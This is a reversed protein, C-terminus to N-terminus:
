AAFTEMSLITSEFIERGLPTFKGSEKLTKYTASIATIYNDLAPKVLDDGFKDSIAPTSLGNILRYLVFHAHYIGILPRPKDRFPSGYLENPANLLLPDKMTQLHLHVHASEHLIRDLVVFLNRNDFSDFSQIYILKALDFTTGASMIESKFVLFASVYESCEGYYAPLAVRMFDFAELILKKTTELDGSPVSEFVNVDVESHDTALHSFLARQIRNLQQFSVIYKNSAESGGLAGLEKVYMLAAGPCDKVALDTLRRNLAAALWISSKQDLNDVESRARSVPLSPLINGWYDLLHHLSGRLSQVFEINLSRSFVADPLGM